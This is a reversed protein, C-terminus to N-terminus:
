KGSSGFGKEGRWTESLEDVEIFDLQYEPIIIAQAIRDGETVTTWYNTGTNSNLNTLCIMWEGRYSSDIVGAVVHLGGKVSLGSRDKIICGYGEPIAIQLGTRFLKRQQPFLNFIKKDDVMLFADFEKDHVCHLDFALNGKIKTPVVANPHIKKVQLQMIYGKRINDVSQIDVIQVCLVDM